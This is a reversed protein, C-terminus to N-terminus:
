LAFAQAFAGNPKQIQSSIEFNVVDDLLGIAACM